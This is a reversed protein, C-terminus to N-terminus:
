DPFPVTVNVAAAPLPPTVTDSDLELEVAALTGKDTFTGCPAVECVNVTAVPLTLVDVGTV